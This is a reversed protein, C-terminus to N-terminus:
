IFKLDTDLISYNQETFAMEADKTAFVNLM